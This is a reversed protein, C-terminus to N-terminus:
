CRLANKSDSGSVRRCDAAMCQWVSNCQWVAASGCVAVCQWVATPTGGYITSNCILLMHGQDNNLVIIIILSRSLSMKGLHSMLEVGLILPRWIKSYQHRFYFVWKFYTQRQMIHPRGAWFWPWQFARTIRHPMMTDNWRLFIGLANSNQIRNM